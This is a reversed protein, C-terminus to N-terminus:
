LLSSIRVQVEVGYGMYVSILYRCNTTSGSRPPAEIYGEPRTLNLQCSVTFFFWCVQDTGWSRFWTEESLGAVVMRDHFLLSIPKDFLLDVCSLSLSLPCVLMLDPQLIFSYVLFCLQNKEFAQSSSFNNKSKGSNAETENHETSRNAEDDSVTIWQTQSESLRHNM